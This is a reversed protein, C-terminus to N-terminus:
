NITIFVRIKLRLIDQQARIFNIQLKFAHILVLVLLIDSLSLPGDASVKVDICEKRLV